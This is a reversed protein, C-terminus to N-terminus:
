MGLEFTLKAGDVSFGMVSNHKTLNQLRLVGMVVSSVLKNVFIRSKKGFFPNDSYGTRVRGRKMQDSRLSGTTSKKGRWVSGSGCLGNSKQSMLRTSTRLIDKSIKYSDRLSRSQGPLGRDFAVGCPIRAQRRSRERLARFRWRELRRRRSRRAWRRWTGKLNAVM